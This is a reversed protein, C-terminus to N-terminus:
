SKLRRRGTTGVLALALGVLALTDPEPVAQSGFSESSDVKFMLGTSTPTGDFMKTPNYFAPRNITGTINENVISNVALDLYGSDIFDFMFKTNFSGTGVLGDPHATFSSLNDLIHASAILTYTGCGVNTVGNDYCKVLNPNAPTNTGGLQHIYIHLQEAATQPANGFTATSGGADSIFSTVAEQLRITKTIEFGGPGNFGLDRSSVNMGNMTMRAVTTQAIFDSVEGVAFTKALSLGTDTTDTFLDTYTFNGMGHQDFGVSPTASAVGACALAASAMLTKILSNM